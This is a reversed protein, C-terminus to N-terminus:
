LTFFHTPRPGRGRGRPARARAVVPSALTQADERECRPEPIADGPRLHRSPLHPAGGVCAIRVARDRANVRMDATPLRCSGGPATAGSRLTRKSVISRERKKATRR